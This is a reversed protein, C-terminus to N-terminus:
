TSGAAAFLRKVWCRSAPSLPPTELSSPSTRAEVQELVDLGPDRIVLRVLVRNELGIELLIERDVKVQPFLLIDYRPLPLIGNRRM